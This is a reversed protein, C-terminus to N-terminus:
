LHCLVRERHVPSSGDARFHGIHNMCSGLFVEDVSTGVVNWVTGSCAGTASDTLECGRAITVYAGEDVGAPVRESLLNLLFREEGALPSQILELWHRPRRPLSLSRLGDKRAM